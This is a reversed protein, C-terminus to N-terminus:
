KHHVRDQSKVAHSHLSRHGPVSCEVLTRFYPCYLPARLIGSDGQQYSLERIKHISFMNVIRVTSRTYYTIKPSRICASLNSFTPWTFKPKLYVMVKMISSNNRIEIEIILKFLKLKLVTQIKIQEYSTPFFPVM